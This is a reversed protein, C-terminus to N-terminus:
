MAENPRVHRLLVALLSTHALAEALDVFIIWFVKGHESPSSTVLLAALAVPLAVISCVCLSLILPRYRRVDTSWVLAQIGIFAYVGMLCRILYSAFFGPSFGPEVWALGAVLWPQPAVAAVFAPLTTLSIFRLLWKVGTEATMFKRRDGISLSVPSGDRRCQYAADGGGAKTGRVENTNPM